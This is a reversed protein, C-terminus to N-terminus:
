IYLSDGSYFFIIIFLRGHPKFEEPSDVLVSTFPIEKKGGTEQHTILSPKSILLFSSTKIGLM